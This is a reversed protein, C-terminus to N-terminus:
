YCRTKVRKAKYRGGNSAGANCVSRRMARCGHRWQMVLRREAWLNALLRFNAARQGTLPHQGEQRTYNSTTRFYNQALYHCDVNSHRGRTYYAECKNQKELLSDNFVMLNKKELSLEKPNKSCLRSVAYTYRGCIRCIFRQGMLIFSTGTRWLIGM